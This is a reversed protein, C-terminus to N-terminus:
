IGRQLESIEVWKHHVLNLQNDSQEEEEYVAIVEGDGFIGTHM